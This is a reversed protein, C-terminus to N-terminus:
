PQIAQLGDRLLFGKSTRVLFLAAAGERAGLSLHLQAGHGSPRWDLLTWAVPGVLGQNLAVADSVGCNAKQSHWLASPWDLLCTRQPTNMQGLFAMAASRLQDRRETEQWSSRVRLRAHVVLSHLSTSGLLLVLSTGIALPIVFGPDDCRSRSLGSPSSPM